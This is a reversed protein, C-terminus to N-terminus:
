DREKVFEAGPSFGGAPASPRVRPLLTSIALLLPASFRSGLVFLVAGSLLLAGWVIGQWGMCPILVPAASARRADRLALVLVFIGLGLYLAVGLFFFCPLTGGTRVPWAAPPSRTLVFLIACEGLYPAGSARSLLRPVLLTGDPLPCSTVLMAASLPLAHDFRGNARASGIGFACASIGFGALVPGADVDAYWDGEEEGKRFERFGAASWAEQWFQTEYAEYWRRALDPWVEPAFTTMYSLGCGRAEGARGIQADASYPPLGFPDACPPVFGRRAREVFASHDTGLVADARRICAVAALVDGPYCQGPYDDLLGHPSRDIEAALTEVQVRLLPEHRLDGTLRAHSTLGGILLMRYFVNEARLYAEGWHARVWTAQGPDTLLAAAAVIAERAYVAPAIDSRSPDMKWADQLAETAWLYFVTGFLPWETAAIQDVSLGTAIGSRVRGSAWRAFGPTLSHHWRFALDPVRAERLGPDGAYRLISLGPLLLFYMSLFVMM